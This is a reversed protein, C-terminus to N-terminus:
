FNSLKNRAQTLWDEATQREIWWVGDIKRAHSKMNRGIQKYIAYRTYKPNIQQARALLDPGSILDLHHKAADLQELIQYDDLGQARLQAIISRTTHM